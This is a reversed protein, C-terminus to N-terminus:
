FCLSKATRKLACGEFAACWDASSRRWRTRGRSLGIGRTSVAAGAAVQRQRAAPATSARLRAAATAPQPTRAAAFCDVPMDGIAEDAGM